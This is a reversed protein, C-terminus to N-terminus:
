FTTRSTFHFGEVTVPPLLWRSGIRQATGTDLIRPLVALPSENFRMQKVRAVIQGNEIKFFGDRTMGTLTLRMPDVHRIYWFRSALLGNEVSGIMQEVSRDSGPIVINTPQGIFPRGSKQAWYRSSPLNRLQGHSIWDVDELPNGDSDFRFVPVDANLPRSFMSFQPATIVQDLKQSFCSRNEDAARADMFYSMYGLFEQLALPMMLLTYEGPELEVVPLERADCSCTHALQTANIDGLRNTTQESYGSGHATRMSCKLSATGYHQMVSQGSSTAMYYDGSRWGALGAAQAEYEKAAAICETVQDSLSSIVEDNGTPHGMLDNTHLDSVVPPLYEPNAPSLQAAQQARNVAASVEDCELSNCVSRGVRQGYAVTVEVRTNHNAQNQTPQSNAMRITTNLSTDATIIMHEADRQKIASLLIDMTQQHSM